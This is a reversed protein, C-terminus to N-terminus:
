NAAESVRPREILEAARRLSRALAMRVEARGRRSGATVSRGQRHSRREGLGRAESEVANLGILLTGMAAPDFM